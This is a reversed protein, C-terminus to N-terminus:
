DRAGRVLGLILLTAAAAIGVWAGPTIIPRFRSEGDRVEIFGVPEVVVGGGVGLGRRQGAIGHRGGGGGLGWRARGVPIVTVGDREVPEGFIRSARATVGLKKAVREFVTAAGSREQGSEDVDLIETDTESESKM